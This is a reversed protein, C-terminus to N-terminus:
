DAVDVDLRAPHFMPARSMACRQIARVSPHTRMAAAEPVPSSATVAVEAWAATGGLMEAETLLSPSKWLRPV